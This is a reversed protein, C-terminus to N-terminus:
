CCTNINMFVLNKIQQPPVCFMNILMKLQDCQIKSYVDLFIMSRTFNYRGANVREYEIKYRYQNAFATRSEDHGGKQIYIPDM